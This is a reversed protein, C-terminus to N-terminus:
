GDPYSISLQSFRLRLFGAAFMANHGNNLHGLDPDDRKGWRPSFTIQSLGLVVFIQMM